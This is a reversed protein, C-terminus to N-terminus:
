SSTNSVTPLGSGVLKAAPTGILAILSIDAV